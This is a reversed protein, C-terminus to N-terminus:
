DRIPILKTLPRGSSYRAGAMVRLAKFNPKVNSLRKAHAMADAIQNRLAKRGDLPCISDSGCVLILKKPGDWGTSEHYYEAFIM